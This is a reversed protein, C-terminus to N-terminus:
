VLAEETMGGCDEVWGDETKLPEGSAGIVLHLEDDELLGEDVKGGVVHAGGGECVGGLEFCQSDIKVVGDAGGYLSEAAGGSRQGGGVPRKGTYELRESSQSEM